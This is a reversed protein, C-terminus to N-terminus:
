KERQPSRSLMNANYNQAQKEDKDQINYQYLIHGLGEVAGFERSGFATEAGANGLEGGALPKKATGEGLTGALAALGVAVAMAGVALQVLGDVQHLTM